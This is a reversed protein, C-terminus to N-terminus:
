SKLGASRKNIAEGLERQVEPPLKEDAYITESLDSLSDRSQSEAIQREYNRVRKERDLMAWRQKALKTLREVDGDDILDTPEGRMDNVLSEIAETTNAKSLAEVYYTLKAEKEPNAQAAQTVGALQDRERQEIAPFTQAPAIVAEIEEEAQIGLLVEPLHRRAWKIAATYFLKQEPDKKWMENDTKVKGLEVTVERPADESRLTGVLTCVMKDGSGEYTPYLKEKLERNVVAAVLKGQFALKGAVVYSESIAAFPDIEWLLAQNCVLFCNAEKEEISLEKWVGNVKRHTLHQPLLSARSFTKAYQMAVEFRRHDDMKYTRSTDLPALQGQNMPQQSTLPNMM